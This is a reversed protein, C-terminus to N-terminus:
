LSSLSLVRASCTRAWYDHVQAPDGDGRVHRRARGTGVRPGGEQSVYYASAGRPLLAARIGRGPVWGSRTGRAEHAYRPRLVYSEM